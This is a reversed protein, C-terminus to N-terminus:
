GVDWFVRIVSVLQGKSFEAEYEFWELKPADVERGEGDLMKTGESSILYM